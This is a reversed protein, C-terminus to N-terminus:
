VDEIKLFAAARDVAANIANPGPTDGTNAAGGPPLVAVGM